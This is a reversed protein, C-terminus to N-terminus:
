LHKRMFANPIIVGRLEPLRQEIISFGFKEFFPQATRSVDSTLEALGIRAAEEHLAAMLRTGIGQRPHYGSVFFHDIYGSSQVDAYGVLKGGLEAVFPKISQIKRMWLDQDLDRPAWANIQVTNYDHKAVLHIASHYVDFLAPEEGSRFRRIVM